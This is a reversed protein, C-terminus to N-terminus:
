VNNKICKLIYTIQYFLLVTLISVFVTPYQLVGRAMGIANSHHLPQQMIIHYPQLDDGHVGIWRGEGIAIVSLLIIKDSHKETFCM